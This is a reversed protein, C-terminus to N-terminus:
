RARDAEVAHRFSKAREALTAVLEDFEDLTLEDLDMLDVYVVPAEDKSQNLEITYGPTAAGTAHILYANPSGPDNLQCAERNCWSPHTAAAPTTTTTTSM